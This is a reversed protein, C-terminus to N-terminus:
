SGLWRSFRVEVSGWELKSNVLLLRVGDSQRAVPDPGIATDQPSHCSPSQHPSPLPYRPRQLPPMVSAAAWRRIIAITANALTASLSFIM